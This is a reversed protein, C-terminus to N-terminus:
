KVTYCGREESWVVVDDADIGEAELAYFAADRGAEARLITAVSYDSMVAEYLDNKWGAYNDALERQEETLEETHITSM